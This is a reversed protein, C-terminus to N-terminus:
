KKFINNDLIIRSSNFKNYVQTQKEILTSKDIKGSFTDKKSNYYGENILFSQANFIVIPDNESMIDQGTIFRSDYEIGFMNLLTPLVDINSSLKNIKKPSLESNYIILGSKHLDYDYNLKKFESIEKRNLGYPFHDPVIVIVTNELKKDKKLNSLLSELGKDLDMSASIYAKVNSTYNLDKVDNQHKKAMDNDSFNHPLHSSISMYYSIFKDEDKYDNYSEKFMELDSQPFLNCNISKELGNYCAKFNDFGFKKQVINREYFNYIGNHYSFSKYGLNKFVNAYSYPFYNNKSKIYSWTGEEPLNGTLNTYEGDSTSAYYIPTYFNNFFLGEEKLKYLTPTTDENIIEFSFSEATIFILNKDKFINTYDNKNTPKKAEIYNFFDVLEANEEKLKDFDINIINYDDEFYTKKSKNEKILSPEFGFIYRKTDIVNGTLYGFTRINNTHNHTKFLLNHPSYIGKTLLIGLLLVLIICSPINIIAILNEKKNKNTKQFPFYIFISILVLVFVLFCVINEKIIKIIASTFGFVQGGNILSYFTFFCDYFKYHIFGAAFLITVFSLFIINLLKNIKNNKSINCLLTLISGFLIAELLYFIINLFTINKFLFVILLLNLVFIYAINIILDQYKKM